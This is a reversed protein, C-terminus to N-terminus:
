TLKPQLPLSLLKVLRKCNVVTATLLDQVKVRLRGRYRVRRGNPWRILDAVKREIRPPERRVEQSAVTQARPQAAHDQAAHESKNVTRGGKTQPSLCPARLPCSRCQAARFRLQGGHGRRTRKRVGRTVGGPCRVADGAANLTFAAPQVLEPAPPVWDIPPVYVTLQPGDAAERM